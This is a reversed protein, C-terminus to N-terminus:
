REMDSLLAGFVKRFTASQGIANANGQHISRFARESTPDTLNIFSVEPKPQISFWFSLGQVRNPLVWKEAAQTKALLIFPPSKDHRAAAGGSVPILGRVGIEL